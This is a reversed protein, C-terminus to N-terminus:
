FSTMISMPCVPRTIDPFETLLESFSSSISVTKISCQQNKLLQGSSYLGTKTDLLRKSHCDPLLQYHSLFDSGIIPISVDAVIFRWLFSRRLGLNLTFHIFGYTKIVSDNAACLDFDSTRRHEQLLKRPFCSLDSGTDM